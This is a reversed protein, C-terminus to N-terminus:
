KKESEKMGADIVAIGPLHAPGSSVPHRCVYESLVCFELPM